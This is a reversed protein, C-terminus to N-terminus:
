NGVEGGQYPQQYQKKVTDNQSLPFFGQWSKEISQEVIKIALEKNNNSLSSLKKLCLIEAAPTAKKKIAIRMKLFDKWIKEFGNNFFSFGSYINIDIYSSSSSTENPNHNPNHNPNGTPNQKPKTQTENPNEKKPRGGKNGNLRQKEIFAEKESRVVELRGNRLFGDDGVNFKFGLIVWAKKFVDHECGAIRALRETDNPLKLNAWQNALLRIYIGVENIDWSQTSTLFDSAYFQFAPSNAM